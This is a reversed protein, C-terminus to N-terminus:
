FHWNLLKNQLDPDFSIRRTQCCRCILDINPNTERAAANADRVVTFLSTDDAIVLINCNFGVALDNIFVLFVLTGSCLGSAGKGLCGM